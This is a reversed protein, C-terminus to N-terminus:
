KVIKKPKTGTRFHWICQLSFYRGIGINAGDSIGSNSITHWYSLINNNLLDNVGISVELSKNKLFRKGIFLDCLYYNDNFMPKGDVKRTSSVNRYIFAGTFTFDKLFIWKIQAFARHTFFNNREMGFKGSYENTTYRTYYSVTFDINKSINSDLRGTLQYWNRNVPVFEDNIIGPIRQISTQATINFNCRMFDMPMGFSVKASLKNYGGLNITKIYQNNAGLKVPQGNEDKMVIFDPNNIVLSDCFYNDSGTYSASVSFTTGLKRNTNIYRIEATHMYAPVLDPNGARVNSTSSRNVVDQLASVGPNRTKGNAEIRLTNSKNFPINATLTYLPYHYTRTTSSTHPLQSTGNYITNQYIASAMVSIKKYAYNYRLTVRNNMFISRNVASLRATPESAYEGSKFPFVLNDGTADSINFTYETSILSRKSVPETFTVRAQGYHSQTLRDRNQINTYDAADIATTDADISNWRYEWSRDLASYRNYTYQGNVSLTRRRKRFRFRYNANVTAKVSFRDNDSQNRQKRIFKDAADTYIYSYRSFLDRGNYMDEITLSPRIIFAHKKTPNLTIKGSFKHTMNRAFTNNMNQTLLERNEQATHTLKDSFPRNENSIANFFYNFNFIKDAYNVGLAHVDSIGSMSKMKFSSGGASNLGTCGSIIDSSTFNFKSINNSMGVVSITRKDTFRSMNGGAIYNHKHQDTDSYGYSGYVRGTTMGEGKKRNTVVNIATYGNGDDVGTLQASDSLRNIIEIQKVVVAPVNRLATLVDNGFFEQGDLLVRQVRKGNADVGGDTVNIGPMKSILRESDANDSVKYATANFILTDGKQESRPARETKVSENIKLPKSFISSDANQAIVLSEISNLAICLLLIIFRHSATLMNIGSNGLRVFKNFIRLFYRYKYKTIKIIDLKM